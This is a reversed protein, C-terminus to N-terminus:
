RGTQQDDDGRPFSVVMGRAALVSCLWMFRPRVRWDGSHGVNLTGDFHAEGNLRVGCLHVRKVGAFYCLQLACGAITAAGRLLGYRIPDAGSPGDDLDFFPALTPRYFFRSRAPCLEALEKGAILCDPGPWWPRKLAGLDFCMWWNCGLKHAGNLALRPMDLGALDDHVAPHSGVIAVERPMKLASLDAFVNPIM